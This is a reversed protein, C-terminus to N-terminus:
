LIRGRVTLAVRHVLRSDIFGVRRLAPTIFRHADYRLALGLRRRVAFRPSVEIALSGLPAIAAGDRFVGSQEGPLYKLGGV